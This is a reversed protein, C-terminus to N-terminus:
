WILVIRFTRDPPKIHPVYDSYKVTFNIYGPRLECSYNESYPYGDDDEGYVTYPLLCHTRVPSGGGYRIHQVLYGIVAGDNFVFNSLEPFSFRYEFLYWDDDDVMKWDNHLVVFDGVWWDAAGDRGPPGAPGMPGQCAAFGMMLILIHGFLKKM